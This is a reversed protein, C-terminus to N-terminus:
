KKSPADRTGNVISQIRFVLDFLEKGINNQEYYKACSCFSPLVSIPVLLPTNSHYVQSVM